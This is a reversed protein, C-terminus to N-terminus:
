NRSTMRAFVLTETAKLIEGLASAVAPDRDKLLGLAKQLTGANNMVTSILTDKAAQLEM